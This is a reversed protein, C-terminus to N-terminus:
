REGDVKCVHWALRTYGIAVVISGLGYAVRTLAEAVPGYRLEADNAVTIQFLYYLAVLILGSLVSRYGPARRKIGLFVTATLCLVFAILILADGGARWPAATLAEETPGTAVTLQYVDVKPEENM